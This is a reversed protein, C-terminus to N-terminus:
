ASAAQGVAVWSCLNGRGGGRERGRLGSCCALSRALSPTCAPMCPETISRETRRDPSTRACLTRMDKAIPARPRRGWATALRAAPTSGPAWGVRHTQIRLTCVERLEKRDRGGEGTYQHASAARARERARKNTGGRARALYRSSWSSVSSPAVGCFASTDRLKPPVRVLRMMQEEQPWWDGVLTRGNLAANGVWHGM